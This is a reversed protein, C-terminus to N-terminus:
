APARTPISRPRAPASWSPAPITRPLFPWHGGNGTSYIPDDLNQAGNGAAEVVIIGNSVATRIADYNPKWWSVPVYEGVPGVGQQEILIVDGAVLNTMIASVAAAFNYGGYAAAYPSAVRITADMLLAACATPTTSGAWNAWCPRAMIMVSDPM